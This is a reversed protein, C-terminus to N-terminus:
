KEQPRTKYFSNQDLMSDPVLCIETPETIYPKICSGFHGEWSQITDMSNGTEM